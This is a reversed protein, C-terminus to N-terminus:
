VVTGDDSRVWENISKNYTIQTNLNVDFYTMWPTPNLPRNATSGGASLGYSFYGYGGQTWQGAVVSEISWQSSIRRVLMKDGVVFSRVAATARELGADFQVRFEPADAHELEFIMGEYGYNAPVTILVTGTAGKNDLTNVWEANTVPGSTSFSKRIRSNTKFIAGDPNHVSGNLFIASTQVIEDVNIIGFSGSDENNVISVPHRLVSYVGDNRVVLSRIRINGVRGETPYNKYIGVPTAFASSSQGSQNCNVSILTGIELSVTECHNVTQYDQSASNTGHVYDVTIEGKVAKDVRTELSRLCSESIVNGIKIDVDSSTEDLQLLALLCAPGKNGEGVVTGIRLGKIKQFNQDPEVDLTAWPGNQAGDVVGIEKGYICDAILGGCSIISMGQRRCDFSLHKGQIYNGGKQSNWLIGDGWAKNTVPNTTIGNEALSGYYICYGQEDQGTPASPDPLHTDKDGIVRPEYLFYDKSNVYLISYKGGVVTFMRIESGPMFYLGHGDRDMLLGTPRTRGDITKDVLQLKVSVDVFTLKNEAYAKELYPLADDTEPNFNFPLYNSLLKSNMSNYISKLLVGQTGGIDVRNGSLASVVGSAVPSMAYANGDVVLHTIPLGDATEQASPIVDGVVLDRDKPWVRANVGLSKELASAFKSETWHKNPVGNELWRDQTLDDALTAATEFPLKLPNPLFEKYGEEGQVGVHYRQLSDSITIGAQWPLSQQSLAFRDQFETAHQNMQRAFNEQWIRSVKPLSDRSGACTQITTDKEAFDHAKQSSQEISKASQELRQEINMAM